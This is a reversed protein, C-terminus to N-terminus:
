SSNRGVIKAPTIEVINGAKGPISGNVVIARKEADVMLVKLKRQKNRKNGLQGAMKLGPLVRSPTASSGISGHQRKSKSGHTMLGRKMNWRKISGAFGKGISTGAVDVLDGVSFIEEVNLQQGPKYDEVKPIKFERLHRM